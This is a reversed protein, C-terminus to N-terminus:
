LVEACISFENWWEWNSEDLFSFISFCAFAAMFGMVFVM